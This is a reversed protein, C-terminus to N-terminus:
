PAPRARRRGHAPLLLRLRLIILLFPLLYVSCRRSCAPSAARRGRGRERRARRSSPRTSTRPSPPSSRARRRGRSRLRSRRGDAGIGVETVQGSRRAAPVPQVAVENPRRRVRESLLLVAPHRRARLRALVALPRGGQGSTAAEAAGLDFRSAAATTTTPWSDMKGGTAPNRVHTPATYTPRRRACGCGIARPGSRRPRAELCLGKRQQGPQVPRRQAQGAVRGVGLVEHLLGVQARIAAEVLELRAGVELRPEVPDERVREDVRVALLLALRLRDGSSSM